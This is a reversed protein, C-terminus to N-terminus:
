LVTTLPTEDRAAAPPPRHASPPSPAPLAAVRGCSVCACLFAPVRALCLETSLHNFTSKEHCRWDIQKSWCTNHMLAPVHVRRAPSLSPPPNVPPPGFGPARLDTHASYLETKVLLHDPQCSVIHTEDHVCEPLAARPPPLHTPSCRLRRSERFRVPAVSRTAGLRPWRGLPHEAQLVARARPTNISGRM